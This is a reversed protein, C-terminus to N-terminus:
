LLNIGNLNHVDSQVTKNTTSNRVDVAGLNTNKGGSNHNGQGARDYVRKNVTGWRVKIIYTM